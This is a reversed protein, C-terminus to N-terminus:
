RGSGFALSGISYRNKKLVIAGMKEYAKRKSIENNINFIAKNNRIGNVAKGLVNKSFQKLRGGTVTNAISAVSVALAAYAWASAAIRSVEAKKLAADYEKQKREKTEPKKYDTRNKERALRNIQGSYYWGYKKQGESTLTGDENQYRRIGWKQGKVGYHALFDENEHAM